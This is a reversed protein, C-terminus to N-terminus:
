FGYYISIFYGFNLKGVSIKIILEFVFFLKYFLRELSKSNLYYWKWILFVIGFLVREEYSFNDFIKYFFFIDFERYLYDYFINVLIFVIILLM